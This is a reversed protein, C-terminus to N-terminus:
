VYMKIAKNLLKSGKKTLSVYVDTQYYILYVYGYQHLKQVIPQIPLSNGSSAEQELQQISMRKKQLIYLIRVMGLAEQKM